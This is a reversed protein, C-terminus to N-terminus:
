DLSVFQEHRGTAVSLMQVVKSTEVLIQHRVLNLRELTGTAILSGAGGHGIHTTKTGEDDNRARLGYLFCVEPLLRFEIAGHSHWGPGLFASSTRHLARRAPGEKSSRRVGVGQVRKTGMDQETRLALERCLAAAGAVNSEIAGSWASEDVKAVLELFGIAAVLFATADLHTCTGGRQM